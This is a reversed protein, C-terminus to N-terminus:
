GAGDAIVHSFHEVVKDCKIGAYSVEASGRHVLYGGEGLIVLLEEEVISHAVEIRSWAKAWNSATSVDVRAVRAKPRPPGRVRPQRADWPGGAPTPRGQM